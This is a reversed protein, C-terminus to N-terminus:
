SAGPVSIEMYRVVEIVSEGYQYLVMLTVYKFAINAFTYGRHKREKLQRRFVIFTGFRRVLM